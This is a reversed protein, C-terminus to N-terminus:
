FFTSRSLFGVVKSVVAPSRLIEDVIRESEETINSSAPRNRARDLYTKIRKPLESRDSKDPSETGTTKRKGM